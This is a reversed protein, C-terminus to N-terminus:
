YNIPAWGGTQPHADLDYTEDPEFDAVDPLARWVKGNHKVLAGEVYIKDAAWDPVSQLFINRREEESVRDDPQLPPEPKIAEILKADFEERLAIIEQKIESNLLERIGDIENKIEETIM